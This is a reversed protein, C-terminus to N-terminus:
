SAQFLLTNELLRLYIDIYIEYVIDIAYLYIDYM